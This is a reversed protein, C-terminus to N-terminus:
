EHVEGVSRIRIDNLKSPSFAQQCKALVQVGINGASFELSSATGHRPSNTVSVEGLSGPVLTFNTTDLSTRPYSKRRINRHVGTLIIEGTSLVLERIM